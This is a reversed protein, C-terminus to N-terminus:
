WERWGINQDFTIFFDGSFTVWPIKLCIWIQLHIFFFGWPISLLQCFGHHRMPFKLCTGSSDKENNLESQTILLGMFMKLPEMPDCRIGQITLKNHAIETILKPALSDCLCLM